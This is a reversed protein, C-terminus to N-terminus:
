MKTDFFDEVEVDEEEDLDAEKTTISEAQM